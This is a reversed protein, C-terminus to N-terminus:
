GVSKMFNVTVPRSGEIWQSVAAAKVRRNGVDAEHYGALAM